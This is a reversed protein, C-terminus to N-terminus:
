VGCNLTSEARGSSGLKAGLIWILLCEDPTKGPMAEMQHSRLVNARM